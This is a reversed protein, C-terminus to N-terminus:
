AKPFGQEDHRRGRRRDHVGSPVRAALLREGGAVCTRAGAVAVATPGSTTMTTTTTKASTTPSGCDIACTNMTPDNYWGDLGTPDSGSVPNDAAYTYGDIQQADGLELVPDDSVSAASPRPTAGRVSPVTQTTADVATEATDHADAVQWQLGGGSTRM